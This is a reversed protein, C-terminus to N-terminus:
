NAQKDSHKLVGFTEDMGKQWDFWDLGNITKGFIGMHACCLTYWRFCQCEQYIVNEPKNPVSYWFKVSEDVSWWEVM